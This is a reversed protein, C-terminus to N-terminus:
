PKPVQVLMLRCRCNSRENSPLVPDQPYQGFSEGVRFLSGLPVTQGDALEHTARVKQDQRTRWRKMTTLSRSEGPARAMGAAITGSNEAVGASGIGALRAREPWRDTLDWSLVRRVRARLADPGDGEAQGQQLAEWILGSVEGPLDLLLGRVLSLQSALWASLGGAALVGGAALFAATAVAQVEPMVTTDVADTWAPVFESTADPNPPQPPSGPPLVAAEVDGLWPRLAATVAAELDAEAQDLPLAM